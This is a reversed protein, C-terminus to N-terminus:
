DSGETVRCVHVKKPRVETGQYKAVFTNSNKKVETVSLLRNINEEKIGFAYEGKKYPLAPALHHVSVERTVHRGHDNYTVWVHGSAAEVGNSFRSAAPRQKHYSGGCYSNQFQVRFVKGSRM